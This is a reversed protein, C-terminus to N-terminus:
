TYQIKDKGNNILSKNRTSFHQEVNKLIEINRQLSAVKKTNYKKRHCEGKENDTTM